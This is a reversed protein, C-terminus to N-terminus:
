RASIHLEVVLRWLTLAMGFGRTDREKYDFSYVRFFNIMM